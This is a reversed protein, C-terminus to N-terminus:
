RYPHDSRGLKRMYVAVEYLVAAAQEALYAPCEREHVALTRVASFGALSVRRMSRELSDLAKRLEIAVKPDVGAGTTPHGDSVPQPIGAAAYFRRVMGGYEIGADYLERRLGGHLVLRGLPSETLQSLDGRRHPQALVTLKEINEAMQQAQAREDVTPRKLDGNATRVGNKRKRGCRM